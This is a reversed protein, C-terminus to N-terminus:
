ESSASLQDALRHLEAAIEKVNQPSTAPLGPEKILRSALMTRAHYDLIIRSILAGITRETAGLEVLASHARTELHLTVKLKSQPTSM